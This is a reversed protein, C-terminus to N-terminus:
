NMIALLALNNSGLDRIGLGLEGIRKCIESRKITHLKMKDNQDGWWFRRMMKDIQNIIKTPLRLTAM